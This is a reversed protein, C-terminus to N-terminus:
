ILQSRTRRAPMALSGAVRSVSMQNLENRRALTPILPTACLQVFTELAEVAALEVVSRQVDDLNNYCGISSQSGTTSSLAFSFRDHYKNAIDEFRRRLSADDPTIQGIIVLDDVSLFSTVNKDNVHSLTPRLARRLFGIISKGTKPGRYRDVAEGGRRYLRISPHSVVDLEQCVRLGASCDLSVVSNGQETEQISIWEAELARSGDRSAILEQEREPSVLPTGSVSRAERDMRTLM